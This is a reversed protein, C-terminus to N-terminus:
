LLPPGGGVAAVGARGGRGAAPGGGPLRYLSGGRGPRGAGTRLRRLCRSLPSEEQATFVQDPGGGARRAAQGGEPDSEGGGPPPPTSRRRKARPPPRRPRNQRWRRARRPRMPSSWPRAGDWPARSGPPRSSNTPGQNLRERAEKLDALLRLSLGRLAEPEFSRVYADDIQRLSHDSLHM